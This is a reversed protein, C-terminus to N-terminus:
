PQQDIPHPQSSPYSDDYGPTRHTIPVSPLLLVVRTSRDFASFSLVQYM